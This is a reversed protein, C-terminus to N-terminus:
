CAPASSPLWTCTTWLSFTDTVAEPKRRRASMLKARRARVRTLRLSSIPPPSSLARARTLQRGAIGAAGLQRSMVSSPTSPAPEDEAADARRQGSSPRPGELITVSGRSPGRREQVSGERARVQGREAAQVVEAQLDDALVQLGVPRDQRALDALRVPPAAPAAALAGRAVAHGPAERVLREAPARGRQDDRHQAVPAGPAATLGIRDALLVTGAHSM